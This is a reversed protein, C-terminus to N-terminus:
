DVRVPRAPLVVLAIRGSAITGDCQDTCSAPWHSQSRSLQINSQRNHVAVFRHDRLDVDIHRSASVQNVAEDSAIKPHYRGLIALNTPLDEGV